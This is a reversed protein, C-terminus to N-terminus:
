AVTRVQSLIVESVSEFVASQPDPLLAKEGPYVLSTLSPTHNSFLVMSNKLQIFRWSM